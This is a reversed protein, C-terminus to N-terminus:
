SRCFFKPYYKTYLEYNDYEEIIVFIKLDVRVCLYFSQSRGSDPLERKNWFSNILKHIESCIM